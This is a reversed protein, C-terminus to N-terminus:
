RGALIAGQHREIGQTVEADPRAAQVVPGVEPGPKESELEHIAAEITRVFGNLTGEGIGTLGEDTHVRAFLWHKWGAGVTITEIRAIRM